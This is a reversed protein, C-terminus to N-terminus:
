WCAPFVARWTEGLQLKKGGRLYVGVERLNAEPWDQWPMSAFIEPGSVQLGVTPKGAGNTMLQPLHKM